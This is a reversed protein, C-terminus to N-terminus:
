REIRCDFCGATTDRVHIYDVDPRALLRTITEDVNGGRVYEVATLRRGRAYANLTLAHTRLDDPFGADERYRECEEEHIFVPGPLPLSETGAFPDYTLLIRRDVGVTFTRLCLRCPGYGKAVEVYTPHAGFPSVRRARVAAAAEQSLAIVRYSRMAM